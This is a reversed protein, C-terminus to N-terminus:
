VMEPRLRPDRDLFQRSSHVLKGGAFRELVSIMEQRSSGIGEVTCLGLYGLQRHEDSLVSVVDPAPVETRLRVVLVQERKHRVAPRRQDSSGREPQLVGVQAIDRWPLHTRARKWQVTLGCRDIVLENPRTGQRKAEISWCMSPGLVTFLAFGLFLFEWMTPTLLIMTVAFLLTGGLILTLLMPWGTTDLKPIHGLRVTDSDPQGVPSVPTPGRSLVLNGATNVVRRQPRPLNRTALDRDVVVYIQDLTLPDAEDLARLLAGTFATFRDGMPAHSPTNATTSTLTYTSAVELQGSIV